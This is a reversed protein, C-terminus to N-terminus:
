LVATIPLYSPKTTRSFARLPIVLEFRAGQFDTEVVTKQEWRGVVPHRLDVNLIVPHEVEVWFVRKPYSHFLWARVMRRSDGMSFRELHIPGMPVIGGDVISDTPDPEVGTAVGGAKPVLVQGVFPNFFGLFPDPFVLVVREEEEESGMIQVNRANGVLAKASGRGHAVTSVDDDLEVPADSFDDLTEFLLAQFFVGEDHKTRVVTGDPVVSVCVFCKFFHPVMTGSDWQPPLYLMKSPPVRVGNM